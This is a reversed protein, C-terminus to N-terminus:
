PREGVALLDALALAVEREINLRLGDTDQAVACAALACLTLSTLPKKM